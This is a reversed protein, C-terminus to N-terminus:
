GRIQFVNKHRYYLSKLAYRCGTEPAVSVEGLAGDDHAVHLHAVVAGHPEVGDHAAVHVEDLDAVAGVNLVVTAQVREVALRGADQAVVDRHAMGDRQVAALYFLACEDAHTGRHEVVGHHTAPGNHSGAGQHKRACLDAVALEPAAHRGLEDLLHVGLLGCREVLGIRAVVDLIGVPEALGVGVGGVRLHDCPAFLIFCNIISLQCNIILSSACKM